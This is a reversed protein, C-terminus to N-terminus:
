HYDPGKRYKDEKASKSGEEVDYDQHNSHYSKEGEETEHGQDQRSDHGKDYYGKKGSDEQEHGSSRHGGKQFGHEAAKSDKDFKEFKDFYGKKHDEDYFDTEKKYEDKHYVNHFGKTKDGKKRYSSHGYNSGKGGGSAEDHSGHEEAEDVHGKERGGNESYRGESHEGDYAGREGKGFVSKSKYGEEGSEGRQSHEEAAYQEGSGDEFVSGGDRPAHYRGSEDSHHGYFEGRGEGSDGRIDSEEHSHDFGPADGDNDGDPLDRQEDGRGDQDHEEGSRHAKDVGHEELGESYYPARPESPVSVHNPLQRDAYTLIERPTGKDLAVAAAAAARPQLIPPVQAVPARAAAGHNYSGSGHDTYHLYYVPLGQQQNYVYGSASSALDEARMKTVTMRQMRAAAIRGVVMAVMVFACVFVREVFM